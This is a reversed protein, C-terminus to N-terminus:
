LKVLHKELTGIKQDQNDGPRPANEKVTKKEENKSPKAQQDLQKQLKAIKKDLVGTSTGIQEGLKRLEEGVLKTISQDSQNEMQTLNQFFKQQNEVLVEKEAKRNLEM